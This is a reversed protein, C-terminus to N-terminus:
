MIPRRPLRAKPQEGPQGMVQAPIQTRQSFRPESLEVKLLNSLTVSARASFERAHNPLMVVTAANALIRTPAHSGRMRAFAAVASDRRRAPGWLHPDGLM